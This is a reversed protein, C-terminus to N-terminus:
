TQWSTAASTHHGDPGRLSPSLLPHLPEVANCPFSHPKYQSGMVSPLEPCSFLTLCSQLLLRLCVDLVPNLLMACMHLVGDDTSFSSSLM